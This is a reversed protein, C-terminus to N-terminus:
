PTRKKKKYKILAALDAKDNPRNVAKKTKILENLGIVFVKENGYYEEKKNRWIEEFSSGKISTIMDIRVPPYGLQIFQDKEIFDNETLGLSKFGFMKLAKIIKRGNELTPEVLIDMDKTYRPEAYLSVAYAGVICYKVKNENLLRLFEKFDKEMRM